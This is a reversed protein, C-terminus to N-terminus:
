QGGCRRRRAGPNICQLAGPRSQSHRHGTVPWLGMGRALGRPWLDELLHADYRVNDAGTQNAEFVLAAGDSYDPDGMYEAYAGDIVLMIHSPLRDRLERLQDAMLVTGTPNNPNALFMLRVRDDLSAIIHDLDATLTPEPARVTEVDAAKAALHYYSFAHATQLIADGPGAYARILLTIIDDSGAGIIIDDPSRGHLKGLAHRLARHASDPYLSMQDVAEAYATM